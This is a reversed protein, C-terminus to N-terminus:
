LKHLKDPPTPPRSGLDDTRHDPPHQGCISRVVHAHMRIMDLYDAVAVREDPMTNYQGGPGCVVGTMGAHHQLLSADSGYFCYPRVAGAPQPRGRVAVHAAHVAAVVPAGPDVSFPESFSPGGDGGRAVTAALGPTAACAEDVLARLDALASEASQGPGYRLSGRLRARDAVQPPRAELLDDGLGARVVGVHARNTRRAEETTAGRFTMANIRPVLACAATVADVAEERKSLHRTAGTVEVVFDVAGAHVTLAALDTPECNVFHDARYGADILARTGFGGQLEGVVFTLVVNGAPAFGADQLTRVAELYSACGAKMNSVGLGHVHGDRVEGGWPDVTWGTTLPNTDVHGNFMLSTGGRGRWIGIANARGGGLDQLRTDLGMEGMVEVLWASVAGEHPTLTRSDYRVLTRVLDLAREADVEDLPVTATV